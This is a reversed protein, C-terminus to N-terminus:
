RDALSSFAASRLAFFRAIRSKSVGMGPGEELTDGRISAACLIDLRPDFGRYPVIPIHVVPISVPGIAWILLEGIAMVATNTAMMSILPLVGDRIMEM